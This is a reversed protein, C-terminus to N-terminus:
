GVNDTSLNCILQWYRAEVLAPLMAEVETNQDTNGTFTESVDTWSTGDTSHSVTYTKIWAEEM